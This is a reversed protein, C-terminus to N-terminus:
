RLRCPVANAIRASTAHPSRYHRRTGFRSGPKSSSRLEPPILNKWERHVHWGRLEKIQPANTAVCRVPAGPRHSRRAKTPGGRCVNRLSDSLGV